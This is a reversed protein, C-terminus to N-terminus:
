MCTCTCTSSIHTELATTAVLQQLPSFPLWCTRRILRWFIVIPNLSLHLQSVHIALLTITITLSPVCGLWSSSDYAVTVESPIPLSTIDQGLSSSRNKLCLVAHFNRGYTTINSIIIYTHCLSPLYLYMYMYTGYLVGLFRLVLTSPYMYALVEICTNANWVKMALFWVSNVKAQSTGGSRRMRSLLSSGMVGSSLWTSNPHTEQQEYLYTKNKVHVYM